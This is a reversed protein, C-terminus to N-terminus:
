EVVFKGVLAGGPAYVRVEDGKDLAAGRFSASGYVGMWIPTPYLDAAFPVAGSFLVWAFALIAFGRKM